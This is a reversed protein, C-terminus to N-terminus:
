DATAQEEASPEEDDAGAPVVPEGGSTQEEAPPTEEVPAQEPTQVEQEPVEQPAEEEPAPVEEEPTEQEVPTEQEEAPVQPGEEPATKCAPYNATNWYYDAMNEDTRFLLVGSRLIDEMLDVHRYEGDLSIINWVYEQGNRLGTVTWCEVGARDCVLQWAAALGAADAVGACLADYVPTVTPRSEYSFRETMYTYLLEAKERDTQRYRIYEAAANVSEEVAQKMDRLAAVPQTYQLDIEMIRHVGSDPYISVSVSPVEMVTGPNQACYAEVIAAVDMERYNRLEVTLREDLSNVAKEVRSRLLAASVLNEISAIERATRRFTIHIDIEYYNVILTCDHTMYDVAYAGLPESKVAEYAAQALDAELEGAYNVARISGNTKGARVLDLIANKLSDYDSVTVGDATDVRDSPSEHPTVSLHTDQAFSCATLTCLLLLMALFRM